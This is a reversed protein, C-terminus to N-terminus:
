GQVEETLPVSQQRKADTDEILVSTPLIRVVKYRRKLTDGEGGLLIDEGDMFYATKRGSSRATSFGYFKLTIPPPPPPGPDPPKAPPPPPQVPGVKVFPEPGKLQAVEKVPPTSFQFLNRNAGGMGVAQVRAFLDLRLTPDVQTPDIREELRKSRVVPHFEEARGRITGARQPASARGTTTPDPMPITPATAVPRTSPEDNSKPVSPGSLLNSWVMYGAFLGLAVLFYVKKKDNAGITM